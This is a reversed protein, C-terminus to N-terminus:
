FFCRYPRLAPPRSSAPPNFILSLEAAVELGHHGPHQHAWSFWFYSTAAVPTLVAGALPGSVARGFNDWVSGTETDVLQRNKVDFTLLRGGLVASYSNASGVDRSASLSYSDMLSQTGARWTVLLPQNGVTLNIATIRSRAVARLDGFPFAAHAGDVTVGLVRTMPALRVDVSDAFTNPPETMRDYSPYPTQRYPLTSGAPPLMVSATPFATSFDSWSVVSVPLSTLRSNKMPGSTSTAELQPWSSHTALDILVLSSDDRPPGAAMQSPQGHIMPQVFAYATGTLPSFAVVVPTDSVTDNVVQHWLLYRIPYARAQVGHVLVVVPEQPKLYRGEAVSGIRPETIAEPLDAAAPTGPDATTADSNVIVQKTDVSLTWLAGATALLVLVLVYVFPSLRRPPRRRARRRRELGATPALADPLVHFTDTDTSTVISPYSLM